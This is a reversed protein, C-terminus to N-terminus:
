EPPSSARPSNVVSRDALRELHPLDDSVLSPSVRPEETRVRDFLYLHALYNREDIAWEM